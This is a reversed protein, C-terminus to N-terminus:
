RLHMGDNSMVNTINSRYVATLEVVAAASGSAAAAL